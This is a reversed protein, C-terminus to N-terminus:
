ELTGIGPNRSITCVGLHAEKDTSKRGHCTLMDHIYIFNIEGKLVQSIIVARQKLNPVM